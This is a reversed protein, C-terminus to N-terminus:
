ITSDVLFIEYVSCLKFAFVFFCCLEDAEGCGIGASVVAKKGMLLHVDLM